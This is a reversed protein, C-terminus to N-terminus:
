ELNQLSHSTFEILGVCSPYPRNFIFVLDTDRVVKKVWCACVDMLMCVSLLIPRNLGEM